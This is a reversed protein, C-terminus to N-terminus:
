IKEVETSGTQDNVSLGGGYIVIRSRTERIARLSAKQATEFLSNCLDAASQGEGVFQLTAKFEGPTGSPRSLGVFGTKAVPKCIIVIGPGPSRPSSSLFPATVRDRLNPFGFWVVLAAVIAAIMGYRMIFYGKPKINLHM